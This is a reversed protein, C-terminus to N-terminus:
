ALRWPCHDRCRALRGCELQFLPLDSRTRFTADFPSHGPLHSQPAKIRLHFSQQLPRTTNALQCVCLYEGADLPHCRYFVASTEEAVRRLPVRIEEARYIYPLSAGSNGKKVEQISRVLLATDFYRDQTEKIIEQHYGDILAM